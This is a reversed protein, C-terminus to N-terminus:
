EIWIWGNGDDLLGFSLELLVGIGVFCCCCDAFGVGLVVM